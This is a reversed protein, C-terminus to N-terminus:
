QTERIVQEGTEIDGSLKWLVLCLFIPSQRLKSEWFAAENRDHQERHHKGCLPLTWADDPKEGMGTDRKGAWRAGMRVHAAEVSTNDKCIVCPLARIFDLHTPSKKRPHKM